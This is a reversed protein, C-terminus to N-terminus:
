VPVVGIGYAMTPSDPVHILFAGSLKSLTDDWLEQVGTGDLAADHLLILGGPKVMPSYNNWDARVGSISHDGDIHLLDFSAPKFHAPVDASNRRLLHADRSNLDLMMNPCGNHARRRECAECRGILTMNDIGVVEAEPWLSKWLWLTGGLYVGIELVLQVDRRRLEDILEALENANQVAGREIAISALERSYTDEDTQM